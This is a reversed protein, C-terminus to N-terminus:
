VPPRDARLEALMGITAVLLCLLVIKEMHGKGAIAISRGYLQM